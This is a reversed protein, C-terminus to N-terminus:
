RVVTKVAKQGQKVIVVGKADQEGDIQQGKLNIYQRAVADDTEDDTKEISTTTGNPMLLFRGEFTGADTGFTYDGQSLDHVIGLENDRLFVSCDLRETSITLVGGTAATYALRVEGMPRENIAYQTGDSDLTYLQTSADAFFKAADCDTEYATSKAANYVVRTRDSIISDSGITLNVLLRASSVKEQSRATAAQQLTQKYTYRGDAPFSVNAMGEPKQVFFPQFPRLFYQDDGPRVAQYASGTWVTMPATYGTQSIDSYATHPNGLFNWSANSASAAEYVVMPVERDDANFEMDAKEVALTLTGDANTQFIYGQGPELYDGTVNKWGGKGNAARTQGDYYRFVFNGPSSVNSLKVRFPFTLFQWKNATVDIDFFLKEVSLNNNAMISAATTGNSHMHLEDLELTANTTSVILGSGANLDADPVGQMVGLDDNFDYDNNIYFYEFQYDDDFEQVAAFQSWQTDYWYNYYGFHQVWLTATRWSSFTQQNIDTPEVTYTYVGNLSTCGSFAYNGINVISSPLDIRPLASCGSFARENIYQLGTPMSISTLSTCNAFAYYSIERLKKSLNVTELSTCESFISPGLFTIGDPITIAKLSTCKYFTGNSSASSNTYYMWKYVTKNNVKTSGWYAGLMELGDPLTIDSLKTCYGFAQRGIIKLNDPLVVKELRPYSLHYSYFASEGLIRGSHWIFTKTGSEYFAARGISDCEVISVTDLSSCERFASYHISQLGQKLAVSRLKTCGLFASDLVQELGEQFEVNKLGNCNMFARQNVKKLTKPLKVSVLRNIGAFAYKGTTNNETVKYDEYYKYDVALISADSLDLHHLNLMKNRIVMLDFGNISGTVKLTMVNELNEEGIKYHLTSYGGQALVSVEYDTKASQSIITHQSKEWGEASRYTDLLQEPVRVTCNYFSTPTGNDTGLVPPTECNINVVAGYATLSQYGIYKITSPLNITYVYSTAYNGFVQYSTSNQAIAEITVEEGPELYRQLEYVWTRSTIPIKEPITVEEGFNEVNTVSWLYQNEGNIPFSLCGFTWTVGNEDTWTYALAKHAMFLCLVMLFLIRKKM